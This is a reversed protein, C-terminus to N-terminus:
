IRSATSHAGTVCGPEEGVEGSAKGQDSESGEDQRPRRLPVRIDLLWKPTSRPLPKWPLGEQKTTM